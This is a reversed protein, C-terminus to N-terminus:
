VQIGDVSTAFAKLVDTRGKLIEATLIRHSWTHSNDDSIAVHVDMTNPHNNTTNGAAGFTFKAYNHWGRNHGKM